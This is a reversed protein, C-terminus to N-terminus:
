LCQNLLDASQSDEFHTLCWVTQYSLKKSFLKKGLGDSGHVQFVNKALDIGIISCEEM